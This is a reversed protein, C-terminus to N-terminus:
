PGHTFVGVKTSPAYIDPQKKKKKDTDKDKKQEEKKKQPDKQLPDPSPKLDAPDIEVPASKTSPMYPDRREDTKKLTDADPDTQGNGACYVLYSLASLALVIAAGRALKNLLTGKVLIDAM